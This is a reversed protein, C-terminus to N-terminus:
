AFGHFGTLYSHNKNIWELEETHDLVYEALPLFCEGCILDLFKWAVLDEGELLKGCVMCIGRM